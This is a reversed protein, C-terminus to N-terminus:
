PSERQVIPLLFFLGDAVGVITTIMYGVKKTNDLYSVIIGSIFLMYFMMSIGLLTTNSVITESWFSVGSSSYM